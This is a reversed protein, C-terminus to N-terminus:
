RERRNKLGGVRLLRKEEETWRRNQRVSSTRSWDNGGETLVLRVTLGCLFVALALLTLTIYNTCIEM